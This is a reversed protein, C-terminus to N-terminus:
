CQMHDNAESILVLDCGEYYSDKYKPEGSEVHSKGEEDLNQRSHSLHNGSFLLIVGIVRGDNSAFSFQFFSKTHLRKMDSFNTVLYAQLHLHDINDQQGGQRWGRNLSNRSPCCGNQWARSTLPNWRSLVKVDLPTIPDFRQKEFYQSLSFTDIGSLHDESVSLYQGDNKLLGSMEPWRVLYWRNEKKCCTVARNLWYMM